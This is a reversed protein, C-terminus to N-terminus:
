AEMPFYRGRGSEFAFTYRADSGSKSSRRLSHSRGRQNECECECRGSFLRYLTRASDIGKVIQKRPVKRM